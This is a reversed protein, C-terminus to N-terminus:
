NPKQWYWIKKSMRSWKTLLVPIPRQDFLQQLRDIRLDTHFPDLRITRVFADLRSLWLYVSRHIRRCIRCKVPPAVHSQIGFYMQCEVPPQRHLACACRHSLLGPPAGPRWSGRPANPFGGPAEPLRHEKHKKVIRM